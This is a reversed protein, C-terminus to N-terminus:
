LYGKGKERGSDGECKATVGTLELQMQTLRLQWM